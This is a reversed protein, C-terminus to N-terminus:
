KQLVIKRKRCRRKNVQKLSTRTRFDVIHIITKASIDLLMFYKELLYMEIYRYSVCLADNWSVCLYYLKTLLNYQLIVM